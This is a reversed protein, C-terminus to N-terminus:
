RAALRSSNLQSRLEVNERKLERIVRRMAEVDPPGDLVADVDVGSSDSPSGFQLQMRAQMIPSSSDTSTDHAHKAPTMSLRRLAKQITKTVSEITVDDNTPEPSSQAGGDTSTSAAASLKKLGPPPMVEGSKRKSAATVKAAPAVPVAAPAAAPAMGPLNAFLYGGGNAGNLRAGSMSALTQQQKAAETARAQRAATAANVNTNAAAGSASTLRQM